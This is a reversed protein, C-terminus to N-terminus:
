AIRNLPGPPLPLPHQERGDTRHEALAIDAAHIKVLKRLSKPRSSEIALQRVHDIIKGASMQDIGRCKLTDDTAIRNRGVALMDRRDHEFGERAQEEAGVLIRLARVGGTAEIIAPHNNWEAKANGANGTM